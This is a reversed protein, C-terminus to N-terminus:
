YLRDVAGIDQTQQVTRHRYHRQIGSPNQNKLVPPIMWLVSIYLTLTSTLALIRWYPSLVRLSRPVTRRASRRDISHEGSSLAGDSLDIEVM